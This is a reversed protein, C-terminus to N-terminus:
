QINIFYVLPYLYKQATFILCFDSNSNIIMIADKIDNTANDISAKNGAIESM